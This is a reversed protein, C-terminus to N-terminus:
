YRRVYDARAKAIWIRIFIWCITANLCLAGLCLANGLGSPTDEFQIVARWIILGAAACLLVFPVALRNATRGFVHRVFLPQRNRLCYSAALVLDALVLVAGAIAIATWGFTAKRQAVAIRDRARDARGDIAIVSAGFPESAVADELAVADTFMLQGLSAFTELDSGSVIGLGLPIVYIVANATAVPRFLDADGFAFIEQNSEILVLEPELNVGPLSSRGQQELGSWEAYELGAAVYQESQDKLNEPVLVRFRESDLTLRKGAADRVAVREFYQPNVVMTNGEGPYIAQSVYGDPRGYDSDHYAVLVKGDGDQKRVFAALSATQDKTYVQGYGISVLDSASAWEESFRDWDGLQQLQGAVPGITAFLMALALAGSTGAIVAGHLYPQQGALVAVQDLPPRMAYAVTHTFMAILVMGGIVSLAWLSFRGFQHWHNYLGLGAATLLGLGVSVTAANGAFAGLDKFYAVSASRGHIALVADRRRRAVTGYAVALFLGMLSAGAVPALGSNLAIDANLSAIGEHDPAAVEIGQGILRGLALDLEGRSRDWSYMGQVPRSGLESADLVTTRLGGVFDPYTALPPAGETGGFRYLTRSHGAVSGGAANLYMVAGAREAESRIAAVASAKSLGDPLGTIEFTTQAGLPLWQDREAFVEVAIVLAIATTAVLALREFRTM